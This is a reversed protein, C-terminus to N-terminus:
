LAEDREFVESMYREAADVTSQIFSVMSLMFDGVKRIARAAGLWSSASPINTPATVCTEKRPSTRPGEVLTCHSSATALGRQVTPDQYVPSTAGSAMTPLGITRQVGQARTDDSTALM